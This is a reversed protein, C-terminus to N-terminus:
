NFSIQKTSGSTCLRNLQLKINAIDAQIVEIKAQIAINQKEQAPLTAHDYFFKGVGCIIIIALGAIVTGAITRYRKLKESFEREGM